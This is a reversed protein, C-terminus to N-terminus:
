WLNEKRWSNTEKDYVYMTEDDSGTSASTTVSEEEMNKNQLEACAEPCTYKEREALMRALEKKTSKMYMAVREDFTLPVIQVYNIQM